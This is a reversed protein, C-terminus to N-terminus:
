YMRCDIMKHIDCSCHETYKNPLNLTDTQKIYVKMLGEKPSMKLVELHGLGVKVELM